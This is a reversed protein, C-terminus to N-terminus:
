DAITKAPSEPPSGISSQPANATHTDLPSASVPIPRTAQASSLRAPASPRSDGCPRNASAGARAAKKRSKQRALRPKGHM